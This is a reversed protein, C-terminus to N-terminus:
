SYLSASSTKLTVELASVFSIVSRKVMLASSEPFTVMIHSLAFTDKVTFYNLFQKDSYILWKVELLRKFDKLRSKIKIAKFISGLTKNRGFIKSIKDLRINVACM